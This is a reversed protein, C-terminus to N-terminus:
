GRRVGGRIIREADVLGMQRPQGAGAEHLRIREAQVADAAAKLVAADHATVYEADRRLADAIDRDLEDFFQGRREALAILADRYGAERGARFVRDHDDQSCPTTAASEAM